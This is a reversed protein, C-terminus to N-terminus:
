VTDSPNELIRLKVEIQVTVARGAMLDTVIPALRDVEVLGARVAVKTKDEIAEAIDQSIKGKLGDFVGGIRDIIKM